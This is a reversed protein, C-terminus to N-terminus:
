DDNPKARDKSAEDRSGDPPKNGSVKSGGVVNCHKKSAKTQDGIARVNGDTRKTTNAIATDHKLMSRWKPRKKQKTCHRNRQSKVQPMAKPRHFLKEGIRGQDIWGHSVSKETNQDHQQSEFKRNGRSLPTNM